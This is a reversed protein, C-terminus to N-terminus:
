AYTKGNIGTKYNKYIAIIFPQFDREMDEIYNSDFCAYKSMMTKVKDTERATNYIDAETLDHWGYLIIFSNDCLTINCKNKERYPTVTLKVADNYQEYTCCKMSHFKFKQATPFGFDNLMLLTYVKDEQLNAGIVARQLDGAYMYLLKIFDVSAQKEDTTVRSELEEGDDYMVMTEFKGDILATDIIVKREGPLGGFIIEEHHITQITPITM